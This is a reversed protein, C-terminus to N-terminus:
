DYCPDKITLRYITHINDSRIVRSDPSGPRLTTYTGTVSKLEIQTIVDEHYLRNLAQQAAFPAVENRTAVERLTTEIITKNQTLLDIMIQTTYPQLAHKM